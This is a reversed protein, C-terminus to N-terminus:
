ITKINIKQTGGNTRSYIVHQPQLTFTSKNKENLIDVYKQGLGKKIYGITLHPKYENFTSTHPLIRLDKNIDNLNDGIIDFKLVDYDESEFLSPNHAIVSNFSYIDLVYEIEIKKVEKHFGYLLTCHPEEELGFNDYADSSEVYIDNNDILNHIDEMEPFDFYLMACGYDYTQKSAESLNKPLLNKLKMRKFNHAVQLCIMVNM